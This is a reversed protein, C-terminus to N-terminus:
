ALGLAWKGRFASSSMPRWRRIASLSAAAVQAQAPYRAQGMGARASRPVQKESPSLDAWRSSRAVVPGSAALGSFVSTAVVLGLILLRATLTPATEALEPIGPGSVSRDAVGLDLLAADIEEIDRTQQTIQWNQFFLVGGVLLLMGIWLRADAFLPRGGGQSGGGATLWCCARALATATQM